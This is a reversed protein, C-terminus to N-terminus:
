FKSRSFKQGVVKHGVLIDISYKLALVIVVLKEVSVGYIEDAIMGKQKFSCSATLKIRLILTIISKLWINLM